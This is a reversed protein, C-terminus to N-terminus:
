CVRRLRTRCRDPASRSPPKLRGAPFDAHLSGDLGAATPAPGARVIPVPGLSWHGAACEGTSAPPDFVLRANSMGNPGPWTIQTSRPPGFAYTVTADGLDLTVQRAESDLSVPTIDFRVTSRQWRRWLVSRPDGRSAPIARPRRRSRRRCGTWRARAEWHASSHRCLAAAPHQLVRRDARGALVAPRFRRPSYRQGSGHCVSLPGDGGEPVALRGSANFFDAVQQRTRGSILATGSAALAEALPRSPQPRAGGRRAAAAGSRRRWDARCAGGLGFRAPDASNRAQRDAPASCRDGEAGSRDAGRAPGPSTACRGTATTSDEQRSGRSAPRREPHRALPKLRQSRAPCSAKAPERPSRNRRRKAALLPRNSLNLQRTASVLLDRMPSQPSGLIYLDQAAQEPTRLPVLNLDALMADWHKAYDTETSRRDCRTRAARGRRRRARDRRAQRAGLKREGGAQDRQRAGAAAGQLLRRRHLFGPHRRDAAQGFRARFRPRAPPASRM